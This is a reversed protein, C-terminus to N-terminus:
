TEVRRKKVGVMTKGGKVKRGGGGGNVNEGEPSRGRMSGESGESEEDEVGMIVPLRWRAMEGCVEGEEVAGNGEMGFVEVPEDEAWMRRRKVEEKPHIDFEDEREIYEVNEEVEEFDPALASWRQDAEKAWVFVLGTELGVAAVLPRPTPHWEVVGLEEKPGELIKVLTGLSREWIYIDHNKYTSALLHDGTSSFACHNWLLRNVVDSFKHEVELELDSASINTPPTSSHPHCLVPPVHTTRLIRDNANVVMDRGSMTLRIYTICGNTLRTSSLVERTSTSIINIWGKNTGAIIYAGNATFVTATTLQKSDQAALKEDIEGESASDSAPRHPASPLTHKATKTPHHLSVLSPSDEFLSAVFTLHDHPHLEAIYVPSDFRVTRLRSGTELDWLVALWDQSASLLYRGSSSWSPHPPSPTLISSPQFQPHPHTLYRLSQIQRVHGRLIRALSRTEM